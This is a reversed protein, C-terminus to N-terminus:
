THQPNRLTFGLIKCLSTMVVKQGTRVHGSVYRNCLRQGTDGCGTHHHVRAGAGAARGPKRRRVPTRCSETRRQKGVTETASVDHCTARILRKKRIAYNRAEQARDKPFIADGRGPPTESHVLHCRDRYFVRINQIAPSASVTPHHSQIITDRDNPVRAHAPVCRCRPATKNM